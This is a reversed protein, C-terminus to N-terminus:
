VFDPVSINSVLQFLKERLIRTSFCKDSRVSFMFSEVLLEAGKRFWV